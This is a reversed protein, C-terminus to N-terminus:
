PFHLRQHDESIQHVPDELNQEQVPGINCWGTNTMLVADLNQFTAPGM